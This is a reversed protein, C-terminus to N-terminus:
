NLAVITHQLTRGNAFLRTFYVGPRVLRGSDDSRDWRVSHSGAALRNNVLTRVRRGSMDFIALRADTPTPLTFVINTADAVPNPAGPRLELAAVSRLDVGVAAPGVVFSTQATRFNHTSGSNTVKLVVTVFPKSAAFSDFAYNIVLGDGMQGGNLTQGGSTRFVWSWHYSCTPTDCISSTGDFKIAEGVHVTTPSYVFSAVPQALAVCPAFFGAVLLFGGLLGMTRSNM